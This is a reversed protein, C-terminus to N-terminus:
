TMAIIDAHSGPRRDVRAHRRDRALTRLHLELSQPLVGRMALEVDYGLEYVVAHASRAIVPGREVLEHCRRAPALDVHDEHVAEITERAAHPM